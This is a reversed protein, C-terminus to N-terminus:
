WNSPQYLLSLVLDAVAQADVSPNLEGEALPLTPLPVSDVVEYRQAKDAVKAAAGSKMNTTIYDALQAYLDTLEGTPRTELAAKLARLQTEADGEVPQYGEIVAQGRLDFALHDTIREEGLLSNVADVMLQCRREPDEGLMYVQRLPVPQPQGEVEVLTNGDFRIPSIRREDDDIVLLATFDSVNGGLEADEMVGMLLVVTLQNRLMYKVGDIEKSPIDSFRDSLDGKVTEALCVGACLSLILLPVLCFKLLIRRM